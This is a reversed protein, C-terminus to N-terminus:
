ASGILAGLHHVVTNLSDAQQRLENAAAASEEATAASSQVMQNM